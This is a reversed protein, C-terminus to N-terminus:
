SQLREENLLGLARAALLLGNRVAADADIRQVPVGIAAFAAIYLPGLPGSVILRIPCGAETRCGSGALEAGILFGSLRTRARAPSDAFLLQSARLSFLRNTLLAPERVSAVVAEAFVPNGPDVAGDGVTHALISHRALAAFSEGTMFTSFGTVRDAEIRVWKSHTGPMCYLGDADGDPNTAVAGLLQTEEGRMVDAREVIRQALGPLIAVRRPLDPVWVANEVIWDLRAPVDIYRAETWGQRAGAMGCIVVPLGAPARVAALHAALIEAFGTKVAVTMGEDSRREALMEGTPTLLWLRFSSTGWDVAAFAPTRTM